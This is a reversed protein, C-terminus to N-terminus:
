VEFKRLPGVLQVCFIMYLLQRCGAEKIGGADLMAAELKVTPPAYGRFVNTFVRWRLISSMM